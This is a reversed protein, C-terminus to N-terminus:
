RTQGGLIYDISTARTGSASGSVSMAAVTLNEDDPINTTHTAVLSQNIYFYVVGTSEVRFGLRIDTADELDVGSDTSTETGDKETKCLISADGDNVQFVIRDAATLMAEPNTAFNVTMGFCLDTQDADNCQFKTEFWIFRDTAVRFIENGQISAGDNDTTAASTLAVRGGIEDAAIAVSAGTDKVETWDNTLDIAVGTFDDFLVTYDTSISSPAQSLTRLAGAGSYLYPGSHRTASM